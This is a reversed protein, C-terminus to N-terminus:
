DNGVSILTAVCDKWENNLKGLDIEAMNFGEFVFKEREEFSFIFHGPSKYHLCCEAHEDGMPFFVVTKESEWQARNMTYYKMSKCDQREIVLTFLSDSSM